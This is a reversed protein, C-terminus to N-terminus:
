DLDKSREFWLKAYEAVVPALEKIEWGSTNVVIHYAKPDGWKLKSIANRRRARDKDIRKISSELEKMTFDEGEPAREMCRKMKHEMDACVFINFPKYEKLLLDASRGVIVCDKGSRGISEIVFRQQRLLEEHNVQTAMDVSLSSNFSLRTNIWPHSELIREAEKEDIGSMGTIRSVIEKDYYEFGLIDAIRKGLERGGSGFERSVTIIRM